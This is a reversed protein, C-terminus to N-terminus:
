MNDSPIMYELPGKSSPNTENMHSIHSAKVSKTVQRWM